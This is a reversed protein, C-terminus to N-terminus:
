PVHEWPVCAEPYWHVYPQSYIPVHEKNDSVTVWGKGDCGHCKTETTPDVKGTFGVENIYGRGKCVPCLEAHSSM